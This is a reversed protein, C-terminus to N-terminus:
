QMRQLDSKLLSSEPAAGLGEELLAKARAHDGANYATAAKNHVDIAYNQRYAARQRGLEGQGPLQRLGEDLIGSAELWLGQAAVRDAERSYAYALLREYDGAEVEGQADAIKGLAARFSLTDVAFTLSNYALGRRQAKYTDPEMKSAYASLLTSAGAFDKQKMLDNLLNGVATATYERYAPCDGWSDAARQIFELGQRNEGMNSLSAAYNLFRSDLEERPAAQGQLCFADVALGVAEGFRRGEELAAIRNNYVLAILRRDDVARRDRYKAPPVYAFRKGVDSPLEKKSGPDFGYPNTTEVDIKLGASEVTCFAHQPTEVGEVTLGATKAFYEFLIASSVCNYSGAELAIDVRTQFESYRNLVKEYLFGLVAEARAREDAQGFLRTGLSDALGQLKALLAETRGEDAGSAVLAARAFVSAEMNGVPASIAAIRPDPSLRPGREASIASALFLLTLGLLCLRRPLQAPM